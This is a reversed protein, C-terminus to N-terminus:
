VTTKTLPPKTEDGSKWCTQYDSLPQLFFWWSRIRELIWNGLWPTSFDHNVGWHKNKVGTEQRFFFTLTTINTSKSNKTISKINKQPIKFITTMTAPPGMHIQFPVERPTLAETWTNSNPREHFRPFPLSCYSNVRWFSFCFICWPVRVEPRQIKKFHMCCSINKHSFPCVRWLTGLPNRQSKCTKTAAIWAVIGHADATSWKHIQTPLLVCWEFSGQLNIFRM